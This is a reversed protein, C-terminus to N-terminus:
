TPRSVQFCPVARLGHRVRLADVKRLGDDLQELAAKKHEECRALSQAAGRAQAEAADLAQHHADENADFLVRYADLIRGSFYAALRGPRAPGRAGKEYMAAVRRANTSRLTMRVLKSLKNMVHAVHQIMVYIFDGARGQKRFVMRDAIFRSIVPDIQAYAAAREGPPLIRVNLGSQRSAVPVYVPACMSSTKPAATRM